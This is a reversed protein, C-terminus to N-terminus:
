TPNEHTWDRLCCSCLLQLSDQSCSCAGSEWPLSASGKRGKDPDTGILWLGKSLATSMGLDIEMAETERSALYDQQVKSVEKTSLGQRRLMFTKSVAKCM